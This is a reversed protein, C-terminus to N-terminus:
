SAYSLLIEKKNKIRGQRDKVLLEKYGLEKGQHVIKINGELDEEIMVGAGKLRHGENEM